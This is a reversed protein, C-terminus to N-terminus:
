KQIKSDIYERIKGVGAYYNVLTSDYVRIMFPTGFIYFDNINNVGSIDSTPGYLAYEDVCAFRMEEFNLFYYNIIEDKLERCHGCSTSYFYVLYEKEEISFTEEWKIHEVDDYDNTILIISTQNCSALLLTSLLLFCRKM